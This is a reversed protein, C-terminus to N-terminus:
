RGTRVEAAKKWFEDRRARHSAATEPFGRIDAVQAQADEVNGKGSLLSALAERVDPPMGQPSEGRAIAAFHRQIAPGVDSSYREFGAKLGELYQLADQLRQDGERDM